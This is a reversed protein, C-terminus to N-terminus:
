HVVTLASAIVNLPGEVHNRLPGIGKRLSRWVFSPRHRTSSFEGYNNKLVKAWLSDNERDVRWNLKALAIENAFGALRIGLGGLYKPKAVKDLGAVHLKKKDPTSGWIFDRNIKDLGNIPLPNRFLM